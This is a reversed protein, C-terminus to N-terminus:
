RNDWTVQLGGETERVDVHIRGNYIGVAGFVTKGEVRLSCAAAYFEKDTVGAPTRVDAATGLVHQSLPAGGVETNHRVCRFGSNITLPRGILGRLAELGLVLRKSIPASNGCCNSGKCAFENQSFHTNYMM